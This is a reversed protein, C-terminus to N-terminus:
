RAQRAFVLGDETDREPRRNAQGGLPHVATRFFPLRNRPSHHIPYCARVPHLAGVAESLSKLPYRFPAFSCL